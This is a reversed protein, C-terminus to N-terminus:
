FKYGIGAGVNWEGDKVATKANYYLPVQIALHHFVATLGFGLNPTLLSNKPAGPNVKDEKIRLSPLLGAAISYPKKVFKINPGVCNIYASKDVYGAVIIGDFLALKTQAKGQFSLMAIAPCSLFAVYKKIKM